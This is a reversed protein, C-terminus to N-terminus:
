RRKRGKKEEKKAEVRYAEQKESGFGLIAANVGVLPEVRRLNEQAAELEPESELAKKFCTHAGAFDGMEFFVLGKRNWGWAYFPDLWLAHDVFRMAEEFREMKLYAASVWGYAEAYNMDIDTAREFEALAEHFKGADYLALGRDRHARAQPSPDHIDAV